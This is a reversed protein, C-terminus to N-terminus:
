WLKILGASLVVAFFQTHCIVKGHCFVWLLHEEWSGQMFSSVVSLQRYLRCHTHYGQPTHTHTHTGFFFDAILNLQVVTNKTSCILPWRLKVLVISILTIKNVYQMYHILIFSIHLQCNFVRNIFLYRREHIFPPLNALAVAVSFM